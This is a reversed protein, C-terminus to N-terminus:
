VVGSVALLSGHVAQSMVVGGHLEGVVSHRYIGKGFVQSAANGHDLLVVPMHLQSAHCVLYRTPSWKSLKEFHFRFDIFIAFFLIKPLYFM